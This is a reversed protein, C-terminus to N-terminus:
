RPLSALYPALCPLLRLRALVGPVEVATTTTESRTAKCCAPAALSLSKALAELQGPLSEALGPHLEFVGHMQGQAKLAVIADLRDGYAEAATRRPDAVAHVLRVSVSARRLRELCRAWAECRDRDLVEVVVRVVKVPAPSLVFPAGTVLASHLPADEPWEVEPLAALDAAVCRALALDVSFVGVVRLRSVGRPPRGTALARVCARGARRAWAGVERVTAPDRPPELLGNRRRFM